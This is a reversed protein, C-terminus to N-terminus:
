TCSSLFCWYHLVCYGWFWSLRNKLCYLCKKFAYLLLVPFVLASAVDYNVSV